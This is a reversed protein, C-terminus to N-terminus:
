LFSAAIHKQKNKGSVRYHHHTGEENIVIYHQPFVTHEGLSAAGWSKALGNSGQQKAYANMHTMRTNM